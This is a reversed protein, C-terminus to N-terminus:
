ADQTVAPAVVVRRSPEVGESRTELGGIETIADHVIKRDSANMPELAIEAGSEKVQDAVKAAFRELADKRKVRYGAVDVHVHGAETASRLVVTRTLEQVADLTVGQHGVMIGLDEGVVAVHVQNDDEVLRGSTQATLGFAKVLGDVFNVAIKAQEALTLETRMVTNEKQADRETAPSAIDIVRSSTSATAGDGNEHKPTREQRGGRGDRDRGSRSNRSGSRPRDGRPASSSEVVDSSQSSEHQLGGGQESGPGTGSGAGQRRRKRDRRDDKAPPKRPKVRARIQAPKAGLGLFGKSPSQVVQVDLDSDAVGLVDLAQQRAEAMNKASVIIWEM